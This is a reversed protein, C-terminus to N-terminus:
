RNNSLLFKIDISSTVPIIHHDIHISKSNFKSIHNINVIYSRHVKKFIEQNLQQILKYFSGYQVYYRDKTYVKYYNLAAEFYLIDKFSIKQLLGENKIYLYDLHSDHSFRKFKAFEFVKQICVDFRKKSIPKLLFDLVNFEFGDIAYKSFASTLIIIQDPQINKLFDIGSLLPMEIDLFILDIKANTKLIEIAQFADRCESILQLKEYGKIYKSLGNRAIPEDDIIICNLNM